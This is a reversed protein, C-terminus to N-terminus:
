TVEEKLKLANQFFVFSSNAESWIELAKNLFVKIGENDNLAQAIKARELYFLPQGLDEKFLRDM